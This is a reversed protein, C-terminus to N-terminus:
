WIHCMLIVAMLIGFAALGALAYLKGTELPQRPRTEYHLETGGPFRLYIKM